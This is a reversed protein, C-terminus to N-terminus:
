TCESRAILDFYYAMSIEYHWFKDESEQKSYNASQFLIRGQGYEFGNLLAIIQEVTPYCFKHSYNGRQRLNLDLAVKCKTVIAGFAKNPESVIDINGISVYVAGLGSIPEEYETPNAFPRIKRSKALPMLQKVVAEELLQLDIM